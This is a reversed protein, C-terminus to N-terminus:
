RHGEISIALHAPTTEFAAVIHPLLFLALAYFAVLAAGLLAAQVPVVREHRAAIPDLAHRCHGCDCWSPHVNSHPFAAALEDRVDTTQLMLEELCLELAEPIADPSRCETNFNGVPSTLLPEDTTRGGPGVM